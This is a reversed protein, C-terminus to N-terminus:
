RWKFAPDELAERTLKRIVDSGHELKSPPAPAALPQAFPRLDGATHWDIGRWNVPCGADELRRALEQRKATSGDMSIIHRGAIDSFPRVDGFQVLVTRDEHTAFAM